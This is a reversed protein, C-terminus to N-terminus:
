CDLNFCWLIEVYFLAARQFDWYQMKKWNLCIPQLVTSTSSFQFQISFLLSNRPIGYFVYWLESSCCLERDKNNTNHQITNHKATHYQSHHNKHNEYIDLQRPINAQQSFSINIQSIKITLHQRKENPFIACTKRHLFGELSLQFFLQIWVLPVRLLASAIFIRKAYRAYWRYERSSALSHSETTVELNNSQSQKNFKWHWSTWTKPM